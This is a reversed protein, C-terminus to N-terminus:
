KVRSKGIKQILVDFQEKNIIPIGEDELHKKRERTWTEIYPHGIDNFDVFLSCNLGTEKRRTVRGIRQVHSIINKGADMLVGVDFEPVDIGENFVVNGVIVRYGEERIARKIDNANGKREVVVNQSYGKRTKEIKDTAEFITNNGCMFLSKIGKSKMERIISKGHELRSVMVLIKLGNNYCQEICRFAAENRNFSEAVYHKYVDTCTRCFTKAKPAYNIYYAFVKSSYGKDRLYKSSIYYISNGFVANLVIDDVCQGGDKYPSATFGILYEPDAIMAPMAISQCSGHHCNHVLFGEVFYNHNSSVTLDYVKSETCLSKFKGLSGQEQIEISEVRKFNFFKREKQRKRSEKIFLSFVRRSRSSDNVRSKSFRNQLMNSLRSQRKTFLRNKCCVRAFFRRTRKAIPNSTSNLWSWERLTCTTELEHEKFNQKSESSYRSQEYPQKRENKEFDFRTKKFEYKENNNEINSSVEEWFVRELLINSWKKKFLGKSAKESERNIKWVNYLSIRRENNVELLYDEETLFKAEKWGEKTYIKHDETCTFSKGDVTVKVLNKLLPKEILKEVVQLEQQNTKENYTWVKTGVKIDKIQQYGQETLVKTYGVFCEDCIIAKVDNLYRMIKPDRRKVMNWVLNNTSVIIESNDLVPNKNLYEIKRTIGRLRARGEIQNLINTRNNIVLIKGDILKFLSSIIETKGSNHVIVGNSIAFNHLDCDVEIDYVFIPEIYHEAFISKVFRCGYVGAIPYEPLLNIAQCYHGNTLLFPHEPTCEVTVGDNFTIKLTDKVQKTIHASVINHFKGDSCYVQKGQYDFSLDQITEFGTNTLIITKGVFCGTAAECIGHKNILCKLTGALQHERVEFGPSAEAMELYAQKVKKMTEAVDIDIVKRNDVISTFKVYPLVLKDISGTQIELSRPDEVERYLKILDNGDASLLTLRRKLRNIFEPDEDTVTSWMTKTITLM